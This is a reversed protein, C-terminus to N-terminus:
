ENPRQFGFETALVPAHADEIKRLRYRRNSM